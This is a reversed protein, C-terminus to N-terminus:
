CKREPTASATLCKSYVDQTSIHAGHCHTSLLCPNRRWWFELRHAAAVHQLETQGDLTQERFNPM